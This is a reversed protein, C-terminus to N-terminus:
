LAVNLGDLRRTEGNIVLTGSRLRGNQHLAVKIIQAGAPVNINEDGLRLSYPQSFTITRNKKDYTATGGLVKAPTEPRPYVVPPEHTDEEETHPKDVVDETNQPETETTPDEQKQPEAQTTDTTTPGEVTVTTEEVAEFEEAESDKPILLYAIVGAAILALASLGIILGLKAGGSKESKKKAKVNGSNAMITNSGGTNFVSPGTSAAPTEWPKSNAPKEAPKAAPKNAKPKEAGAIITGADREVEFPKPAAELKPEQVSPEPECAQAKLDAPTWIKVRDEPQLMPELAAYMEAVSQYRNKKSPRMAKTIVKILDTSVRQEYLCEPPLVDNDLIEDPMPPMKGVLMKYLTAGLAYIDMTVPLVSSKGGYFNALEISNQQEIPAYGPTGGGITTSSEPNGSDDFQKALGFDILAVHNPDRLMINSPKLDLHLMNSSHLYSLASAVQAALKLVQAQPLPGRNALEDDISGGNLFEMAYYVTNNAEFCSHVRVINEHHLRNLASAENKFKRMYKDYMGDTVSSTVFGNQRGNIDSMFFEKVAVQVPQQGPASKDRFWALYTIGFSGEGLVKIVEYERMGDRIVTGAPLQKQNTDQAM